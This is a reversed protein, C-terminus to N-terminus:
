SGSRKGALADNGRRVARRKARRKFDSRYWKALNSVREELPIKSLKFKDEYICRMFGALLALEHAAFTQLMQNTVFTAVAGEEGHRMFTSGSLMWLQIGLMDNFRYFQGALTGPFFKKSGMGYGTIVCYMIMRIHRGLSDLNHGQPLMVDILNLKRRSAEFWVKYGHWRGENTYYDQDILTEPSVDLRAAYKLIHQPQMTLNDDVLTKAKNEIDVKKVLEFFIPDLKYRIRHYLNYKLVPVTNYFYLRSGHYAM